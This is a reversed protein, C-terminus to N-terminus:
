LFKNIHYQVNCNCLHLQYMILTMLLSCWFSTIKVSFSSVKTCATYLMIIRGTTSSHIRTCTFYETMVLNVSMWWFFITQWRKKLQMSHGTRVTVYKIRIWYTDHCIKMNTKLKKM